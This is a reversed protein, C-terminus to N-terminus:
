VENESEIDMENEVDDRLSKPIPKYSKHELSRLVNYLYINWWDIVGRLTPLAFCFLYTLPYICFMM